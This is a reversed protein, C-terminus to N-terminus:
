HFSIILRSFHKSNNLLNFMKNILLQLTYTHRHIDSEYIVMSSLSIIWLSIVKTISFLPKLCHSHVKLEAFNYNGIDIFLPSDIYWLLDGLWYVDVMYVGLGNKYSLTPLSSQWKTEQFGFGFPQTVYFHARGCAYLAPNIFLSPISCWSRYIMKRNKGVKLKFVKLDICWKFLYCLSSLYLTWIKWYNNLLM